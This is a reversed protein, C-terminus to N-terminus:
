EPKVFVNYPVERWGGGIVAYNKPQFGRHIKGYGTALRKWGVDTFYIEDSRMNVRIPDRMFMVSYFVGGEFCKKEIVANFFILEGGYRVFARNHAIIQIGEKGELARYDEGAYLDLLDKVSKDVAGRAADSLVDELTIPTLDNDSNCDSVQEISNQGIAEPLGLSLFAVGVFFLLFIKYALGLRM